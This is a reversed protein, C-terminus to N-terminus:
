NVKKFCLYMVPTIVIVQVVGNVRIIRELLQLSFLVGNSPFVQQFAEWRFQPPYVLLLIVTVFADFRRAFSPETSQEFAEVFQGPGLPVVSVINFM